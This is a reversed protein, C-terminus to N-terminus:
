FNESDFSSFSSQTTNGSISLSDDQDAAEAAQICDVLDVEHLIPLWSRLCLFVNLLDPELNQRRDGYVQGAASFVRGIPVSTTPIVLANLAHASLLPFRGANQRWFSVPDTDISELGERTYIDIEDIQTTTNWRRRKQIFQRLMTERPPELISTSTTAYARQLSDTLLYEVSRSEEEDILSSKHRPNLVHCFLINM